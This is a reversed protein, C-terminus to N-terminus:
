PCVLGTPENFCVAKNSPLLTTLGAGLYKCIGQTATASITGANNTLSITISCNDQEDDGAVPQNYVLNLTASGVPGCANTGDGVCLATPDLTWDYFTGYPACVTSMGGSVEQSPPCNTLFWNASDTNGDFTIPVGVASVGGNVDIAVGFSVTNLTSGGAFSLGGQLQLPLTGSVLGTFCIPTKAPVDLLACFGAPNNATVLDAVISQVFSRVEQVALNRASDHLEETNAPMFNGSCAVDHSIGPVTQLSFTPLSCLGYLSPPGFLFPLTAGHVCDGAGAVAPPYYGTILYNVPLASLPYGASNCYSSATPSAFIKGNPMSTNETASGFGIIHCRIAPGACSNGEDVWTSHAYFDEAAHLMNGMLVWMQAQTASSFTGGKLLFNLQARNAALKALSSLFLNSDFHDRPDYAVGYNVVNLAGADQQMHRKNIQKIASASFPFCNSGFCFPNANTRPDVASLAEATIETHTNYFPDSWFAEAARLNLLLIVM